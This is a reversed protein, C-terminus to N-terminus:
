NGGMQEPDALEFLVFPFVEAEMVSAYEGVMADDNGSSNTKKAGKGARSAPVLPQFYGTLHNVIKKSNKPDPQSCLATRLVRM